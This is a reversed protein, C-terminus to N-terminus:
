VVNSCLKDTWKISRRGITVVSLVLSGDMAGEIGRFANPCTRFLCPEWDKGADNRPDDRLVRSDVTAGLGAEFPRVAGCGEPERAVIVLPLRSSVPDDFEM